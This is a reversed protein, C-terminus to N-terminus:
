ILRLAVLRNLYYMDRSHAWSYLYQDKRMFNVRRRSSKQRRHQSSLVQHHYYDSRLTRFQFESWALFILIKELDCIASKLVIVCSIVRFLKGTSLSTSSYVIQLVSLWKISAQFAFNSTLDFSILLFVHYCTGHAYLFIKPSFHEGPKWRRFTSTWFPVCQKWGM